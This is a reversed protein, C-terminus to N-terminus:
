QNAAKEVAKRRNAAQMLELWSIPPGDPYKQNYARVRAGVDKIPKGKAQSEIIEQIFDEQAESHKFGSYINKLIKNRSETLKDLQDAKQRPTLNKNLYIREVQKRIERLAKRAALFQPRKAMLFANEQAMEIAKEPEGTALYKNFGKSIKDLEDMKEYFWTQYRSYRAPVSQKVFRGVLPYDDIRKAPQEPFDMANRVVIDTGSLLFTGLTSFYGEILAEARKPSIGLKGALVMTESTWPDKQQKAPLGKLKQSVIPRGTFFSKNAWQELVPTFLQPVDISFTQRATHGIFNAVHKMEEDGAMADLIAEPLSSFIAGIEFPKPIRFHLDGIWFHYYAWRDWDELEKYREDDKNSMWLAITAAMLISSKILMSKRTNPSAAARGLKYLGQNRANIFPVMAIILRVATSKGHMSFDLLDRAEFGASLKSEGKKRLKSYLQVRAANESASGIKEWIELARKAPHLIQRIVGKGESKLIRKIYNSATKPDDARFYSSGFGFSSSMLEIYEQNEMMSKWFGIGSDWFPMFSKQIMATHLTDRLMNAIRFGAGFTAGYTLTRKPARFIEMAWHNLNPMNMSSLADFLDTDNVRFFVPRGDEQFSLVPEGTKKHVFIMKQKKDESEKARYINLATAKVPEIIDSESNVAFEYAEKRAVNRMSESILHMWNHLLNQLPDGIKVDAGKLRKIQASIFKKNKVPAKLFEKRTTEDEFIRYFPVYYEREWQLRGSHNIIGAQEAIDLINKNFLHLGRAALQMTENDEDGAWAFIKDRADKDLWKERGEAELEEARKAAVWYALKEWDAGLSKLFPIFGMKKTNVTLVGSPDWELGGHEMFMSFVAQTGTNARHLRYAKESLQTKIPHLHDFIQTATKDWFEKTRVADYADSVIQGVSKETKGFKQKIIAPKEKRRRFLSFQPMGEDMSKQIMEETIPLTWVRKYFNETISHEVVKGRRGDMEAFQDVVGEAVGRTPYVGLSNGKYDLAQYDKMTTDYGEARMALETLFEHVWGTIETSDKVQYEEEAIEGFHMIYSEYESYTSPEGITAMYEKIHDRFSLDANLIFTKDAAINGTPRDGRMQYFRDITESITPYKDSVLVKSVEVKPKGWATKGFFKNVENVLMRDYFSRMGEGGVKLDVGSYTVTPISVNPGQKLDKIARSALDKGIYDELEKENLNIRDLVVSDDKKAYFEYGSARRVVRLSDIQKSLDYREAQIEGPTWSIKDFENEAAWRVMRKFALMPWTKKFPADPVADENEQHRMYQAVASEAARQKTSYRDKSRAIEDGNELEVIWFNSRGEKHSYVRKVKPIRGKGKYGKKRGIQHWDSQLEELFLIRNGEADLRENFRVHLLVNPENWHSGTWTQETRELTNNRMAWIEADLKTEFPNGAPKRKQADWVWYAKDGQADIDIYVSYRSKRPVMLLLEKYDKGGPVQWQDYRPDEDMDGSLSDAVTRELDKIMTAHEDPIQKLWQLDKKGTPFEVRFHPDNKITVTNPVPMGHEIDDYFGIEYGKSELQNILEVAEDAPFYTTEQRIKENITVKNDELYNLIEQKTVRPKAPVMAEAQKRIEADWEDLGTKIVDIIKTDRDLERAKAEIQKERYDDIFDILGSWELEEKKFEGKKAFALITQKMSEPTGRNPLKQHLVNQMQSYFVDTPGKAQYQQFLKLPKWEKKGEVFKRSNALLQRIQVDSMDIKVGIKKLFKKIADIVRQVVSSNPNVAAQQAIYENVALDRGARTGLDYGHLKNARRIEYKKNRWIDRRLRRDPDVAEVGWHGIVEHFLSEVGADITDFSNAILYVNDGDIMGAIKADPSINAKILKQKQDRPLEATYSVVNVNPKNAWKDLIPNLSEELSDRTVEPVEAAEAIAISTQIERDLTEEAGPDFGSEIQSLLLDLEKNFQERAHEPLEKAIQRLEKIRGSLDQKTLPKTINAFAKNTADGFFCGPLGSMADCRTCNWNGIKKVGSDIPCLKEKAWAPLRGIEDRSLVKRGLKVPLIVKIRNRYKEVLPIDVEGRYVLAIPLSRHKDAVDTNTHDLSLLRLNKTPIRKLIEPRKSFIQVRIGQKNLDKILRPYGPGAEGRDLFRLAKQAEFEPMAKYEYAIARAARAPDRSIAYHMAESKIMTVPFNRGRSAYCFDACAQTPDCDIYSGNVSNIPKSPHGIFGRSKLYTWLGEEGRTELLERFFRGQPANVSSRYNLKKGAIVDQIAQQTLIAEVAAKEWATGKRKRLRARVDKADKRSRLYRNLAAKERKGLEAVPLLQLVPEDSRLYDYAGMAEEKTRPKYDRGVIGADAMSRGASLVEHFAIGGMELARAISKLFAERTPITKVDEKSHFVVALANTKEIESIVRAAAERMPLGETYPLFGILQNRANLLLFGNANDLKEEIFKLAEKSSNIKKWEKVPKFVTMMREKVPLKTVRVTPPIAQEDGARNVLSFPRYNTGGIIIGSYDIDKLSLISEIMGSVAYDEPSPKTRQSPHNHAFYVKKTGPVNLVHGAMEIPVIQSSHGTGKSYRHIELVNGKEDVAVMYADEQALKRIHALLSAAESENQVVGGAASINGTTAMRVRQNAPPLTAPVDQGTKEFGELTLQEAKQAPEFVAPTEEVTYGEYTEKVKTPKKKDITKKKSTLGIYQRLEASINENALYNYINARDRQRRAIAESKAPYGKIGKVDDGEFYKELDVPTFDEVKKKKTAKMFSKEIARLNQPTARPIRPVFKKDPFKKARKKFDELASGLVEFTGDAPVEFKFMDSAQEGTYQAIAKDIEAMLFAKQEKPSLDAAATASVDATVEVTKGKDVVKIDKKEILDIIGAREGELEKIKALAVQEAAKQVAVGKKKLARVEASFAKKESESLAKGIKKLCDYFKM